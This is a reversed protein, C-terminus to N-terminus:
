IIRCLNCGIVNGLFSAVLALPIAYRLNKVNSRSFYIASVYFVTESSGYIVSACRGIFGDTGYVDYIHQLVSLSGAGSLPRLLVLETCEGPIGVAELAPSMVGAVAASAGSVRFVECAVMVAILYPLVNMMLELAGSAGKVFASYADTRRALSILMVTIFILPVIYLTMGADESGAQPRPTQGGCHHAARGARGALYQEGDRRYLASPLRRPRRLRGGRATGRRHIPIDALEDRVARGANDHQALGNIGMPTAANGLGLLNASVNMAIYKETEESEGKFLLRVLPRLLHALKDAMGTKELVGFLGLWIGYLAILDLSLLVADSAGKIMAALAAAPDFALLATVSVLM